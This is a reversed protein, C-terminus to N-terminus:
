RDKNGRPRWTAVAQEAAKRLSQKDTPPTLGKRKLRHLRAKKATLSRNLLFPHWGRMDPECNRHQQTHPSAFRHQNHLSAQEARACPKRSESFFDLSFLKATM